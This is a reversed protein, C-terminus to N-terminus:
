DNWALITSNLCLLFHLPQVISGRAIDSQMLGYQQILVTSYHSAFSSVELVWLSSHLSLKSWERLVPIPEAALLM